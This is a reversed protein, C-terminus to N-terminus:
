KLSELEAEIELLRNYKETREARCPAGSKIFPAGVAVSLDAIFADATDGSRHSVIINMGLSRAAAIAQLTSTLTGTQNPKILVSNALKEGNKIRAADTVFLDDGVLMIRAGLRTYLVRWGDHDDEGAGDEISILPYKDALREWEDVLSAASFSLRSKPLLYQMGKGECPREGTETRVITVDQVAHPVLSGPPSVVDVSAEAGVGSKCWESAAADLALGIRGSYGAQEIAELLLALADDNGTLEPAFGGEDGVATTLSRSALIRRLIRYMEAGARLSDAFTEFATPVIMFEQVDLTNTAHAGGNLVNMMPSPLSPKTGAIDALYRWLPMKAADAAARACALSVALAANSGIRAFNDTGDIERLAGDVAEQDDAAMGRLASAIEGNVGAIARKVDLGGYAEDGDRLEKAEHVGASAGSPVSASGVAGGALTVKAKVTPNGRSDLIRAGEIREIKTDM